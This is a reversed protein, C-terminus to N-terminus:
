LDSFSLREKFAPFPGAESLACAYRCLETHITSDVRTKRFALFHIVPMVVFLPSDPGSAFVAVSGSLSGLFFKGLSLFFASAAAFTSAKQKAEMTIGLIGVFGDQRFPKYENDTGM